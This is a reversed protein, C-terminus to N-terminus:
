WRAQARASAASLPSAVGFGFCSISVSPASCLRRLRNVNPKAMCYQCVPFPSASCLRRLCNVTPLHIVRCAPAIHFSLCCFSVLLPAGVANNAASDPCRSEHIGLHVTPINRCPHCFPTAHCSVMLVFPGFLLHPPLSVFLMFLLM